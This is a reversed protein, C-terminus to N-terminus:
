ILELEIGLMEALNRIKQVYDGSVATFHAGYDMYARRLFESANSVRIHIM